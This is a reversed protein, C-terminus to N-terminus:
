AQVMQPPALATALVRGRHQVRAAVLHVMESVRAM